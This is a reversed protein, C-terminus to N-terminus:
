DSCCIKLEYENTMEINICACKLMKINTKYEFKWNKTTGELYKM